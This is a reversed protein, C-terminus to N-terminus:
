NCKVIDVSDYGEIAQGDFTEGTLGAETDECLIGTEQTNVHLVLDLDGDWDVDEVHGQGHAEMAGDPGFEVSLPDVTTADFDETTLIAVPIVGKSKLNVSNPDNGPKIDILVEELVEESAAIGSEIFQGFAVPGTGVAVTAVMSDTSTDIVSVNNSAYNTVYVRTGAPNVAVGFPYTGVAVTAVVTDTLTDIVSVNNSAYNTVYVRTGAPNVAVGVPYVGVAVAAVVTDTSTDIVSVNNSGSNTIYVRTGAPNVAVGFPGSGVAVTAVVTDTSTDIVSVNSSTRNTVYVRTGAPNVAVGVPDNGVAVTAVVTDTLTDIVSITNNGYNTIYAFPQAWVNSCLMLSLLSILVIFWIGKKMICGGKRTKPNSIIKVEKREVIFLFIFFIKFL